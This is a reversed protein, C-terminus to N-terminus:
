LIIAYEDITSSNSINKPMAIMNCCCYCRRCCCLSHVIISYTINAVMHSHFQVIYRNSHIDAMSKFELWISFFSIVNLIFTILMRCVHMLAFACVCVGSVRNSYSNGIITTISQVHDHIHMSLIIYKYKMNYTDSRISRLLLLLLLFCDFSCHEQVCMSLCVCVCVYVRIHKHRIIAFRKFWTIYSLARLALFVFCWLSSWVRFFAVRSNIVFVVSSLFLTFM